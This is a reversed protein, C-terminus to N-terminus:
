LIEDDDVLGVLNGLKERLSQRQMLKQQAAQPFETIIIQNKMILLDILDELIRAMRLDSDQLSLKIESEHGLSELFALVEPDDPALKESAESVSEDFIARIRGGAGRKVYLM